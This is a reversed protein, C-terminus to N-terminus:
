GNNFIIKELSNDEIFQRSIQLLKISGEDFGIRTKSSIYTLRNKILEKKFSDVTRDIIKQWYTDNTHLEIYNLTAADAFVFQDPRYKTAWLLFLTVEHLNLPSILFKPFVKVKNNKFLTEVFTLTKSLKIGM